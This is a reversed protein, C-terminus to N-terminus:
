QQQPWTFVIVHIFHEPCSMNRAVWDLPLDLDPEIGQVRVFGNLKSRSGSGQLVNDVDQGSCHLVGIVQGDKDGEAAPSDTPAAAASDEAPDPVPRDGESSASESNSVTTATEEGDGPSPPPSCSSFLDPVAKMLADRITLVKGASVWFM